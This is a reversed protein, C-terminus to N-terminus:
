HRTFRMGNATHFTWHSNTNGFDIEDMLLGFSFPRSRSFFDDEYRIHVHKINLQIGSFLNSLFSLGIPQEFEKEVAKKDKNQMNKMREDREKKRETRAQRSEERNVARDSKKQLEDQRHKERVREHMEAIPVLPDNM